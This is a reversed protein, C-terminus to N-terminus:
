DPTKWKSPLNQRQVFLTSTAQILPREIGEGFCFLQRPAYIAQIPIIPWFIGHVFGKLLIAATLLFPKGDMINPVKKTCIVNGAVTGVFGCYSLNQYLRWM